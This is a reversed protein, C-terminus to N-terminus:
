IRKEGTAQLNDECVSIRLFASFFFSGQEDLTAYVSRTLHNEKGSFLDKNIRYRSGEILSTHIDGNWLSVFWVLGCLSSCWPGYNELLFKTSEIEMYLRTIRHTHRQPQKMMPTIDRYQIQTWFGHHYHKGPTMWRCTIKPFSPKCPFYMGGHLWGAPCEFEIQVQLPPYLQYWPETPLSSSM